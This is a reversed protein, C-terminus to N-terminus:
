LVELTSRSNAPPINHNLRFLNTPDYRAKVAVLRDWTAGPYADRVGADGEQDLFNVYVAEDGRHLTRAFRTVWAEHAARQYVAAVNVLIRRSRHAFATAEVPLRAMAGGLVRVQAVAMPASASQLHDLIAEAAPRRDIGGVFVTRATDYADDGPAIVRGKVMARIQSITIGDGLAARGGATHSKELMHNRRKREVVYDGMLVGVAPFSMPRRLGSSNEIRQGDLLNSM